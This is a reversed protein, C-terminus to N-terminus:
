GDLPVDAPSVERAPIGAVTAGEPVDHLVVANAGITADSGIRVAGLVKAGAGIMVRDAINPMELELPPRRKGVTVGNFVSVDTGLVAPGIVIDSRHEIRLGPGIRAGPALDCATRSKTMGYVAYALWIRGRKHLWSYLRFAVILRFEPTLLLLGVKRGTLPTNGFFDVCRMADRKLILPLPIDINDV